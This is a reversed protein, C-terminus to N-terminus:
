RRFTDASSFSVFVFYLTGVVQAIAVDQGLPCQPVPDKKWANNLNNECVWWVQAFLVGWTIFFATAVIFLWTRLKGFAM